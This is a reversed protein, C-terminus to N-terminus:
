LGAYTCIDIYMHATYIYTHVYTQLITDAQGGGANVTSRFKLQINKNTKTEENQARKQVQRWVVLVAPLCAPLCRSRCYSLGNIQMCKQQQARQMAAMTPIQNEFSEVCVRVGAPSWM